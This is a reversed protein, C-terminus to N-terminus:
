PNLLCFSLEPSNYFEYSFVMEGQDLVDLLFLVVEGQDLVDLLSFLMFIIM